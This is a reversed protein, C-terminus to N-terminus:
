AVLKWDAGTCLGRKPVPEALRSWHLLPQSPPRVSVYAGALASWLPHGPEVRRALRALEALVTEARERKAVLLLKPLDLKGRSVLQAALRLIQPRDLCQLQCIAIVLEEDPL